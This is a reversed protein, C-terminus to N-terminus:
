KKPRYFLDLILADPKEEDVHFEYHGDAVLKEGAPTLKEYLSLLFEANGHAKGYLAALFGDVFERQRAMRTM